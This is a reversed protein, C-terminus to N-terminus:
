RRRSQSVNLYPSVIVRRSTDITYPGAPRVVDSGVATVVMPAVCWHDMEGEALHNLGGTTPHVKLASSNNEGEALVLAITASRAVM